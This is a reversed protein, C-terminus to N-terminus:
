NLPITLELWGSWVRSKVTVGRVLLVSDYPLCCYDVDRMPALVVARIVQLLCALPPAVANQFTHRFECSGPESTVPVQHGRRAGLCALRLHSGLLKHRESIGYTGAGTPKQSIHKAIHALLIIILHMVKSISCACQLCIILLYDQFPFTAQLQTYLKM